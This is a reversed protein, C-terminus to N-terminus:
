SQPFAFGPCSGEKHKSHRLKFSGTRFAGRRRFGALGIGAFGVLVMAWTLSEPVPAGPNGIGPSLVLSYESADPFSPPVFISPDSEAFSYSSSDAGSSVEIKMAFISTASLDSLSPSSSLSLTYSYGSAGCQTSGIYCNWSISKLASGDYNYFAVVANSNFADGSGTATLTGSITVPVNAGPPGILAIYYYIGSDLTGGAGMSSTTSVIPNPSIVQTLRWGPGSENIPIPSDEINAAQYQANYQPFLPWVLTSGQSASCAIVFAAAVAVTLTQPRRITQLIRANAALMAFLRTSMEIGLM